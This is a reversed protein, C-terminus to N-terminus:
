NAFGSGKFETDAWVKGTLPDYHISMNGGHTYIYACVAKKGTTDLEARYSSSIDGTTNEPSLDLVANWVETCNQVRLRDGPKRTTGAPFGGPYLDLTGDGFRPLDYTYGSLGDLMQLAKARTVGDQLARAGLKVAMEHTYKLTRSFHPLIQAIVLVVICIVVILEILSFGSQLHRSRKYM